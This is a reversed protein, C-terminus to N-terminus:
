NWVLYFDGRRGQAYLNTYMPVKSRQNQRQHNQPQHWTQWINLVCLIRTAKKPWVKLSLNILSIQLPADAFDSITMEILTQPSYRKVIKNWAQAQIKNACSVKINTKTESKPGEVQSSVQPQKIFKLNCAVYKYIKRKGKKKKQFFNKVM